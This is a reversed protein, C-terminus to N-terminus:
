AVGRPPRFLGGSFEAKPAYSPNSWCHQGPRYNGEHESLDLMGIQSDSQVRVAVAVQTEGESRKGRCGPGECPPSNSELQAFFLVQGDVYVCVKALPSVLPNESLLGQPADFGVNSQGDLHCGAAKATPSSALAVAVLLAVCGVRWVLCATPPCQSSHLRSNM